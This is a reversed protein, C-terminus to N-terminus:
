VGAGPKRASAHIPFGRLSHFVGCQKTGYIFPAEVGAAYRSQPVDRDDRLPLLFAESIPIGSPQSKLVIQRFLLQSVQDLNRFSIM